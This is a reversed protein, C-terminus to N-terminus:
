RHPPRGVFGHSMGSADYYYGTIVGASNITMPFTGYGPVASPNPGDFLTIRGDGTMLFGHCVWNTDAYWGTVTGAANIDEPFTGEWSGTTTGAGAINFLPAYRGNTTRIFGHTLANNDQVFGVITGNPSIGTPFTGAGEIQGWSAADLVTVAGNPERVYGHYVEGFDIYGGIAAGHGNIASEM